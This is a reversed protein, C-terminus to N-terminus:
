KELVQKLDALGEDFDKGVAKDMNFFMMMINMPVKHKGHFGWTVKTGDGEADTKIYADSQSKFPKLFRLETEIKENNVINKIEQEGWGVNKHDSEWRSLFGVTGDEGTFIQKMGPDRKKWPSWEDQNKVIKIYSFVDGVPRNISVSRYVHYKKPALLALLIILGVIGALIYLFIM